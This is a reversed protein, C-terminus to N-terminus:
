PGAARTITMVSRDRDSQEVEVMRVEGSEGDIRIARVYGRMRAERPTLLLSWRAATGELKLLFHRELAQRDGALTGRISESLAGLAPHDQVQLVMTRGGRSLTMTGGDVVMSEPRPKLTHRELRSPATFSLEGSSTVPADLMAMYKNEVFTARSVKHASLAQMLQDLDWAWAPLALLWAALIVLLRKM